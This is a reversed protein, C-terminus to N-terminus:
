LFSYGTLKPDLKGVSGGRACIAQRTEVAGTNPSCWLSIATFENKMTSIEWFIERQTLPLQM